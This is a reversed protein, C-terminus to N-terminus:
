PWTRYNFLLGATCSEILNAFLYTPLYTPLYISIISSISLPFFRSNESSVLAIYLRVSPRITYLSPRVITYFHIEVLTPTYNLARDTPRDTPRRPRLTSRTTPKRARARARVYTPVNTRAHHLLTRARRATFLSARVCTTDHPRTRLSREENLDTPRCHAQFCRDNTRENPRDTPRDTLAAPASHTGIYLLRNTPSDDNCCAITM